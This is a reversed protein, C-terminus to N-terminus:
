INTSTSSEVASDEEWVFSDVVERAAEYVRDQGSNNTAHVRCYQYNGVIYYQRFAMGLDPAHITFTYVVYGQATTSGDGTLEADMGNLQAALQQLIASRFAAHEQASYPSQGVDVSINDPYEETAQDEPVYLLMTDTSYEENKVWGEPVTFSGPLTTELGGSPAGGTPTKGTPEVSIVLHFNDTYSVQYCPTNELNWQISQSNDYLDGSGPTFIGNGMLLSVKTRAQDNVYGTYEELPTPQGETYPGPLGSMRGSTALQVEATQLQGLSIQALDAQAQLFREPVHESVLMFGGLLGAGALSVVMLLVSQFTRMGKWASLVVGVVVLLVGTLVAGILAMYWLCYGSLLLEPTRNGGVLLNLCAPSLAGLLLLLSLILGLFPALTIAIKGKTPKAPQPTQPQEEQPIIGDALFQQYEKHLHFTAKIGYIGVIILWWGGVRGTTLLYVLTNICGYILLLISCVRSKALHVGLGLGVVLVVDFIVGYNQQVLGFILSIAACLYAVIGAGNINARDQKSAYQACFARKSLREM